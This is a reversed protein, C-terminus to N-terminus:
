GPANKKTNNANGQEGPLKCIAKNESLLEWEHERILDKFKMKKHRVSDSANTLTRTAPWMNLQAQTKTSNSSVCTTDYASVRFPRHGRTDPVALVTM